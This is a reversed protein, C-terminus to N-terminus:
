SPRHFGVDGVEKGLKPDGAADLERPHHALADALIRLLELWGLFPTATEQEGVRVAGKLPQTQEVELRVQMKRIKTIRPASFM